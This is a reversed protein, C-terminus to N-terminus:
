LAPTIALGLSRFKLELVWMTSLFLPGDGNLCERGEVHACHWM